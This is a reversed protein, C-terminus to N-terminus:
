TLQPDHGVLKLSHNFNWSYPDNTKTSCIRPTIMEREKTGFILFITVVHESIDTAREIEQMTIQLYAPWFAFM